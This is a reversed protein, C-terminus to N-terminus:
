RKFKKLMKMIKQRLEFPITDNANFKKLSNRLDRLTKIAEPAYRSDFLPKAKQRSAFETTLRNFDVLLKKLQPIAQKAAFKNDISSLLLSIKKGVNQWKDVLVSDSLESSYACIAFCTLVMFIISKKIM